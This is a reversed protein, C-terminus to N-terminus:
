ITPPSSWTTAPTRREQLKAYLEENTAFTTYNVKIGTLAEFESIVDM